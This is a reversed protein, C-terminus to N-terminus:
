RGAKSEGSGCRRVSPPFLAQLNTGSVCFATFGPPAICVRNCVSLKLGGSSDRLPSAHQKLGTHLVSLTLLKSM